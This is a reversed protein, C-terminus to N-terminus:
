YHVEGESRGGRAARLHWTDGLAAEASLQLDEAAPSKEEQRGKAVNHLSQTVKFFAFVQKWCHTDSLLKNTDCVNHTKQVQKSM